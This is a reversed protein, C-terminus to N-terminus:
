FQGAADAARPRNSRSSPRRRSPSNKGSSRTPFVRPPHQTAATGNYYRRALQIQDEIENLSNQLGSFNESARLQPIGRSPSSSRLGLSLENEADLKADPGEASHLPASLPIGGHAKERAPTAKVTEVLNPILDYRGQAPRRHRELGGQAHQSPRRATTPSSSGSVLVALAGRRHHCVHIIGKGFLHECPLLARIVHLGFGFFYIARIPRPLYAHRRRVIAISSRM